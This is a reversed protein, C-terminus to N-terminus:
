GTAWDEEIVVIAPDAGPESPNGAGERFAPDVGGTKERFSALPYLGLEETWM